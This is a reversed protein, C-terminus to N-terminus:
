STLAKFIIKLRDFQFRRIRNAAAVLLGLKVSWLYTSYFKRTFRVRNIVSYYDSLHSKLEPNAHAGTSGGEKHFITSQWCYGLEWGAQSGRTAWDIEEFYLFYDEALLGVSELFARSVFLAAGVPYDIQTRIADADYQGQDIEFEGLHISSAFVKNYKGGVAQIRDPSAYFRLKSGILGREPHALRYQNLATLSHPDVVVDNNLIWVAEMANDQLALRIGVNNGPGYGRNEGTQVLTFREYQPAPLQNLWQQIHAESNDESCNDCVIVRYNTYELQLLSELCELTDQWGNWNLVIIYIM